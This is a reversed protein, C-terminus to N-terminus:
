QSLPEHSPDADERMPGCYQCVPRYSHQELSHMDSSQQRSCPCAVSLEICHCTFACELIVHLDPKM